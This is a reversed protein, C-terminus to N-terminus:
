LSKLGRDAKIRAARYKSELKPIRLDLQRREERLSSIKFRAEEVSSKNNREKQLIDEELEAADERLESLKKRIDDQREPDDESQLNRTQTDISREISEKDSNYSSLHNKLSSNLSEIQAHWSAIAATIKKGKSVSSALDQELSNANKVDVGIKFGQLFAGENRTCTKKYDGGSLGFEYGSKKKCFVKLGKQYGLAFDKTNVDTFYHDNCRKVYDDVASVRGNLADRDGVGKWGKQDFNEFRSCARGGVSKVGANYAELDVTISYNACTLNYTSPKPYHASLADRKGVGAWGSDPFSQYRTCLKGGKAHVGNMYSETIGFGHKTCVKEYKELRKKWDRGAQIDEQAKESWDFEACNKKSVIACSSLGLGLFIFFFKIILQKM